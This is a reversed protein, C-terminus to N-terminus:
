QGCLRSCTSNPLTLYPGTSGPLAMTPTPTSDFLTRATSGPLVMTSHPLPLTFDLLVLYLWQQASGPLSM